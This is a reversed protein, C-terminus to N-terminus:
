HAASAAQTAALAQAASARAANAEYKAGRYDRARIRDEARKLGDRAAALPIPAAQQAGAAEAAQIAQRTDSMTQVPADVCAGALLLLGGCAWLRLSPFM